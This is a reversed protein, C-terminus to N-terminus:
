VLLTIDERLKECQKFETVDRQLKNGEMSLLPPISVAQAQCQHVHMKHENKKINSERIGKQTKRNTCRKM